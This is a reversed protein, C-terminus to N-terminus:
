QAAYREQDFEPGDGRVAPPRLGEAPADAPAAPQQARFDQRPPAYAAPTYREAAQRAARDPTMQQPRSPANAASTAPDTYVTMGSPAMIYFGIKASLRTMTGGLAYCAGTLMDVYRRIEAKDILQDIVVLTCQGRRLCAMAQRCAAINYVNVVYADMQRTEPAPQQMGPFPVVNGAPAQSPGAGQTQPAHQQSRRNRQQGRLFSEANFQTQYQPAPEPAADQAPAAYGGQRPAYPNPSLPAPQRYPAGPQAHPLQGDRAYAGYPDQQPYAAPGQAYAGYPDQQPYAAPGQAQGYQPDGAPQGSDPYQATPDYGNNQQEGHLFRNGRGIVFAQKISDLTSRLNM